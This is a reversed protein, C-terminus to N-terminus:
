IVLLRDTFRVSDNEIIILYVGKQFYAIDIRIETNEKIERSLIMKGMIDAIIVSTKNSYSEKYSVHLLQDRTIPNPYFKVPSIKSVETNRTHLALSNFTNLRGYGYYEDWGPLDESPDGVQDEATSRLINRIEGPTRGPNQALLLACTGSVLPNAQSTGGWYTDYNSNSSNHLGYMYNGPAVIDIHSGYNSGTNNDWFFPNSRTDDPDTSGVAITNDFGAPYYTTSSNTNMMCAVILVGNYFAYDVAAKLLNSSSSGGMSMNIVRAGKDIAYYIAEAWWSYLGSDDDDLVKCIMLRCNWDVGAYGSNNNGNAGIIGSVNTGHGYADDPVNDSYAFDWGYVDDIYGNEDDDISNGPIEDENTWIRGDFEPHDTNCGNDLVAIIIDSSGHQIDWALEMDIDAGATSNSLAFSGDNKLSWQRYYYTDGPIFMSESHGGSTGIYNPEVYKFLGSNQYVKIVEEINQAKKFQIRYTGGVDYDAKNSGKKRDIRKINKIGYSQNLSDLLQNGTKSSLPCTKLKISTSSKLKVVLQDDAYQKIDQAFLFCNLSLVILFFLLSKM